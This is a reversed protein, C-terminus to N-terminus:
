IKSWAFPYVLVEYDFLVSAMRAAASHNLSHIIIQGIKPRNAAIWQAVEMGTGKGPDCMEKGGLDHDLLVLDWEKDLQQICEDVTSVLVADPHRSLFTKARLVSDDLFLIKM